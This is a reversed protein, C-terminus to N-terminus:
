KVPSYDTPVLFVSKVGGKITLPGGAKEESAKKAANWDPDSGFKGFSAKAADPSAHALLYILTNDKDPPNVAGKQDALPTWYAINTMGHKAFLKVTHDRFRANLNPLRGPETVYTRLEFVRNGVNEAKALPSYDTASLYASEVKAVLKGNAESAKHAKQWDPDAMFAKWSANRADLSPYALFYVLKREPNDGIPVFYGLSTIGHKAFLKLTHDRFRAHLADLKGEPAYYVRMEFCRTDEASATVTAALLLALLSLLMKM